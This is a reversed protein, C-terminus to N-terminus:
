CQHLQLPGQCMNHVTKIPFKPLTAIVYEINLKRPSFFSNCGFADAGMEQKKESYEAM